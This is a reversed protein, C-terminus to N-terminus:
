FVWASPKRCRRGTGRASPSSREFAIVDAFVRVFPEVIGTARCIGEISAGKRLAECLAFIREDTPTAIFELLEDKTKSKYTDLEFHDAGIELGRM